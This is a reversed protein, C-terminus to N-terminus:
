IATAFSVGGSTAAYVTTGYYDNSVFMGNVQNGGLGNPVRYTTFTAGGDTTIQLGNYTAVYITNGLAYVGLAADNGFLPINDFNRGNDVSVSVGGTTAAYVNSGVAYVGIVFDSGLGSNSNTRNDYTQGNDNSVGLGNNTAAYVTTNNLGNGVAYVGFTYDSGLGDLTTANTYTQGSDLSVSVGGTTAAYVTSGNLGTAIAYVGQVFTSGLGATYNTYTGLGGNVRSISVGSTTAAYVNDGNNFVEYVGLVDNSGLGNTTGGGTTNLITYNTYSGGGDTSISLGNNTAAYVKSGDFYVQRVENSGLGSGTNKNV